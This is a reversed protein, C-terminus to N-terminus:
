PRYDTCRVVHHKTTKDKSIWSSLVRMDKFPLNACEKRNFHKCTMCMGGKPQYENKM